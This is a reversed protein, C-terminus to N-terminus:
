AFRWRNEPMADEFAPDLQAVQQPSLVDISQGLSSLLRSREVGTKFHAQQRYLYLLGKAVRDYELQHRDSVQNLRHQSYLCLEHKRRTNLEAARDSCQKLFLATWKWFKRDFRLRIRFAQDNRYLSKLLIAPVKPSAWAYAHGPAIMSANAASAQSAVESAVDFVSIERSSDDFALEYATSVGVVGAGLIAIKM